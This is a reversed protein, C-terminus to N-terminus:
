RHDDRRRETAILLRDQCANVEAEAKALRDCPACNVADPWHPHQRCDIGTKRLWDCPQARFAEVKGEARVLAITADIISMGRPTVTTGDESRHYLAVGILASQM